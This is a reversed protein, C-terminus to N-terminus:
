PLATAAIAASSLDVQCFPTTSAVFFGRTLREVQADSCAQADM